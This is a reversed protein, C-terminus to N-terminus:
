SVRSSNEEIACSFDASWKEVKDKYFGAKCLELIKIVIDNESQFTM